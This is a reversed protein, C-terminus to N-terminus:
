KTPFETLKFDPENQEFELFKGSLEQVFEINYATNKEVLARADVVNDAELYLAHTTERRPAQKTNEQYLVKFIM